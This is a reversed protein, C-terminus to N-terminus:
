KSCSFASQFLNLQKSDGCVVVQYIRHYVDESMSVSAIDKGVLLGALVGTTNSHGVVLADQSGDLLSKAFSDLERPNYLEIKKAKSKATPEATTKTRIYDTSYVVDINVDGLFNALSVAREQGCPTLGPDRPNDESVEKEAHRVLYITYTDQAFNKTTGTCYNYLSM